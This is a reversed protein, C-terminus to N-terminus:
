CRYKNRIYREFNSFEKPLFWMSITFVTIYAIVCILFVKLDIIKHMVLMFPVFWICNILVVILIWLADIMAVLKNGVSEKNERSYAKYEEVLMRALDIM